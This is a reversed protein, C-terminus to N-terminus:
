RSSATATLPADFSFGARAYKWSGRADRRFINMFKGTTQTAGGAQRPTLELTFRGRAFASSGFLEMEDFSFELRMKFPDFFSEKGWAVVAAKGSVQPQDPPQFVIDDSLTAAWRQVDGATVAAAYGQVLKTIENKENSTNTAGGGSWMGAAANDSSWISRAVKWSGDTERHWIWVCKGNDHTTSGGSLPTTDMTWDFRDLAWDGAIQLERPTVGVKSRAVGFGQRIWNLSAEKGMLAPENPPMSIFNDETLPRIGDIDASNFATVWESRLKAISDQDTM